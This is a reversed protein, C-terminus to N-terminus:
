MAGGKLEKSFSGGIGYMVAADWEIESPEIAIILVREGPGLYYGGKGAKFYRGDPCAPCQIIMKGSVPRVVWAGQHTRDIREWKKLKERTM